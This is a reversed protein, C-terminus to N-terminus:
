ASAVPLWTLLRDWLRQRNDAFNHMHAMNPVVVTTIDGSLPYAVAEQRPNASVDFEGFGLFVPVSILYAFPQALGPTMGDVGSMRPIMTQCQEEDYSMLDDAVTPVHFIGRYQERPAGHYMPLGEAGTQLANAQIIWQRREDASMTTWDPQERTNAILRPSAGLIAVASFDAYKGQQIMTIFGGLSQGVGVFTAAPIPPLRDTLSGAAVAARVHQLVAHAADAQVELGIFDGDDPRSSDGGGLYDSAVFIVGREAFYEANSYGHRGPPHLDWYRRHYTGGPIAIVVVPQDPLDDAEPAIVTATVCLSLNRGVSRSVDISVDTRTTTM